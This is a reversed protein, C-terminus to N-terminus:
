SLPPLQAARVFAYEYVFMGLLVPLFALSPLFVASAIGAAVGLGLALGLANMRAWRVTGLFAAAQKANDTDHKAHREILVFVLHLLLSGIVIGRLPVSRPSFFVFVASGCALAQVLLHPLLLKSQWLDRGECQAFLFATYGAVGLALLASPWRVLDAIADLGFWRLALTASVTGTFAMLIWAGKVLWSRTNPRTLLTLFKLPRHLDEVLLFTTVATFFLAVMEPMWRPPTGRLGLAVGFPALMAAGAALGKTVLYMAVAWGWQVKHGADLVTRVDPALGLEEPWPEPKAPPRESWLYTPPREAAGPLLSTPEVGLYHV